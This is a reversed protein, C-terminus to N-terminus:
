PRGLPVVCESRWKQMQVVHALSLCQPSVFRFLVAYCEHTYFLGQEHESVLILERKEGSVKWLCIEGSTDHLFEMKLGNQFDQGLGQTVMSLTGFGPSIMRSVEGSITKKPIQQKFQSTNATDLVSSRLANHPFIEHLHNFKELFLITEFGDKILTLPPLLTTSESMLGHSVHELSERIKQHYQRPIHQGIWLYREETGCEYCYVKSSSFYKMMLTLKMGSHTIQHHTTHSSLLTGHHLDVDIVTFFIDDNQIPTVRHSISEPTQSFKSLLPFLYSPDAEVQQEDEVFVPIRALSLPMKFEIQLIKAALNEAIARDVHNCEKGIWVEIQKREHCLLLFAGSSALSNSEYKVRQSIANYIRVLEM